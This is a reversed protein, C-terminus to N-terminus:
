FVCNERLPKALFVPGHGFRPSYKVFPDMNGRAINGVGYGDFKPFMQLKMNPKKKVGPNYNMKIPKQTKTTLKETIKNKINKM